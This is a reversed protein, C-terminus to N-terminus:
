QDRLNRAGWQNDLKSEIRQLQTQIDKHRSEYETRSVFQEVRRIEATELAEIRHDHAELKTRMVGYTVGAALVWTVLLGAMELYPNMGTPFEM